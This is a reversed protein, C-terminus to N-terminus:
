FVLFNQMPTETFCNSLIMYKFEVNIDLIVNILM